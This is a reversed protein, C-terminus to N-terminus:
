NGIIHALIAERSMKVVSMQCKRSGRSGIATGVVVDGESKGLVGGKENLQFVNYDEVRAIFVHFSPLIVRLGSLTV